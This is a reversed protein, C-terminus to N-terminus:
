ARARLGWLSRFWGLMDVAKSMAYAEASLTSRVVRPIKKSMWVLPSIPAEKNQEMATTTACIIAGQHSSLNKSSAFSADGFSVFTLDPVPIHRFYVQVKCHEQTERLVKNADLLTQVTAVTVQSQLEGVKAAVDPRTHTIAYQLSGVLGRLKSRETESVLANPQCRRPRGVDIQPIALVYDEQSARISWDPLQELQIGTFTFSDYKRSGFPLKQELRRIKEEFFADGGCVGDDVHVGLIGSLLGQNYLMFVCPELPHRQFGLAELQKCLEKYFLLPADVRGYANGLLECVEGPRLKLARRLEEPPDMALPNAADAQGRLFATKIDFSSLRFCKSSVTQLVLARGERSLTPADRVVDVLKPDQFGLVVLRAKARRQEQGEEPSKWTLVWRSKLIQEPNLRTRLIARVASTQIWCQIERSKAADFLKKDHESLDRVRVEARARKSVAAVTALQEPASAALWRGLDKPKMDVELCFAQNEECILPNEVFPLNDEALPPATAAESVHLTTFQLLPEGHSEGTGLDECALLVDSEELDDSANDPLNVHQPDVTQVSPPMAQNSSSAPAHEVTSRSVPAAVSPAAHGFSKREVEEGAPGTSAQPTMLPTLEQEPQVQDGASNSFPVNLDVPPIPIPVIPDPNPRSITGRPQEDGTHPVEPAQASVDIFSSAGGSSVPAGTEGSSIAHQWERVSAPRLNEPACRLIKTAHSVWVVSQGEQFIVKAPGHWRGAGLRNPSRRQMWYLVWNGPQFPGRTPNSRRLIARRITQSNDAELFAQRARCRLDLRQRHRESELDSGETLAHSGLSDDSLVSGPVSVAKGLVIQEPAYGDHRVLANKAQFCQLLCADFDETSNIIKETDLRQIMHKVVDGHRELRGRQWPATTVFTQTNMAQFQDLIEESRFEGAPDLYVKAPTGAWALWFDAFTRVATEAHRDSARRGLHFCSAEDLAHIVYARFGSRGKFWFGDIGVTNNFEKAEHLKAPRQHLPEVSELCADCQFDKAAAIMEAPFKAATLHRALTLPAPHGLNRHLRTLEAQRSPHLSRFAPGHVPITPPPWAKVLDPDKFEGTAPGSVPTPSLQQTKVRGLVTILIEASTIRAHKRCAPMTERDDHGLCVFRSGVRRALSVRWPALNAPLAGVPMYLARVTKGVFVQLIDYRELNSRLADILPHDHPILLSGKPPACEQALDFVAKWTENPLEQLSMDSPSASVTRRPKPRGRRPADVHETATRKGAMQVSQHFPVGKPGKFRKRVRGTDEAALVPPNDQDLIMHRAVFQAFGRCYSGAFRSTSVSAGSPLRISGAVQQHVHRADCVRKCLSQALMSCTTLIATRKRIPKHGVPTKLGFACMDTIVKYTDKRVPALADEELMRSMEPQELHFHRGHYKQYKFLRTCLKLHVSDQQRAQHLRHWGDRTRSANLNTWSGWLKCEPSVWIHRPQERQIVEFLIRQGQITSLDGDQKTFRKALGGMECLQQTLRSDPYAYVELLDLQTGQPKGYALCSDQFVDWAAEAAAEFSAACSQSLSVSEIPEAMEPNQLRQASEQLLSRLPSTVPLRLPAYTSSNPKHALVDPQPHMPSDSALTPAEDTACPKVLDCLIQCAKQSEAHLAAIVTEKLPRKTTAVTASGAFSPGDSGGDPEHTAAALQRQGGVNFKGNNGREEDRWLDPSARQRSGHGLNRGRDPTGQAAEEQHRCSQPSKLRERFGRVQSRGRDARSPERVKGPVISLYSAAGAQERAHTRSGVQVLVSQNACSRHLDIGEHGSWFDRDAPRTGGPEHARCRGHQSGWAFGPPPCFAPRADARFIGRGQQDQVHHKSVPPIPNEPQVPDPKAQASQVVDTCVSSQQIGPIEEVRCVSDNVFEAKEELQSSNLSVPISSPPKDSGSDPNHKGAEVTSVHLKARPGCGTQCLHCAPADRDEAKSLTEAALQALDVLYLGTPSTHLRLNVDLRTLHCRDSQTDVVAGMQKLAKKSLLLPTRGPVVEIGLWVTQGGPTQLPLLIRRESTLTQNNGFRFRVSSKSVKVLKRVRPQLQRLFAKLLLDGMVCRSAGTDLIAQLPKDDVSLIPLLRDDDAPFMEPLPTRCALCPPLAKTKPSPCSRMPQRSRPQQRKRYREVMVKLRDGIKTRVEEDFALYAAEELAHADMPLETLLESNPDEVQGVYATSTAMREAQALSASADPKPGGMSGPKGFKPCEAKWHGKEGCARCTSRAIKALLQDRSSSSGKGKGKGKSFRGASGKNGKGSVPWFGRSRKKALLRGRAELYSVLSDQLEPVEQFFAELEEEFGNVALADADESALLGDMFEQDLEGDLDLSDTAGGHSVLAREALKEYMESPEDDAIQAEYTKTRQGSRSGQMEGFFRSGLLRMSSRVKNYSLDGGHEIVIRKKDDPSLQSQRLLVYARLEGFSINQALLEEFHVDHRAIYSDHTEDGKQVTTYIAREFHEYKQELVTQGWSGGLAEVIAKIGAHDSSKLKEASIKSVKKFATGECLLAVRPGLAPMYERPWVDALFQLKQCYETVDTVGPTFRPVSAWPLTSKEDGATTSSAGAEGSM